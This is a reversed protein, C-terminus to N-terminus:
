RCHDRIVQQERGRTKPWSALQQTGVPRAQRISRRRGSSNRDSNVVPRIGCDSGPHEIQQILITGFSRKEANALAHFLVRLERALDDATAMRYLIVALM